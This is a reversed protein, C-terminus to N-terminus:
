DLDPLGKIFKEAFKAIKDKIRRPHSGASTNITVKGSSHKLHVDAKRSKFFLVQTITKTAALGFAMLTVLFGGDPAEQALTIQFRATKASQSEQSFLTIWPSNEDMSDLADLTTKVVTLAAAGPGLLM